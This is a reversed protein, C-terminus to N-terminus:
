FPKLSIAFDLLDFTQSWDFPTIFRYSLFLICLTGAWLIFTMTVSTTDLIGFRLLHYLSSLGFLVVVFAALVYFWLFAIFPIPM